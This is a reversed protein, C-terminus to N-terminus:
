FKPRELRGIVVVHLLRHPGHRGHCGPHACNQQHAAGTALGFLSLGGLRLGDRRRHSTRATTHEVAVAIQVLAMVAAVDAGRASVQAALFRPRALEGDHVHAIGALVLAAV